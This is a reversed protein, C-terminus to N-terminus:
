DEPPVGDRKFLWGAVRLYLTGAMITMISALILYGTFVCTSFIKFEWTPVGIVFSLAIIQVPYTLKVFLSPEPFKLSPNALKKPIFRMIGVMITADTIVLVAAWFIALWPYLPQGTFYGQYWIIFVAPFTLARDIFLDLIQGLSSCQNLHRALLGDLMDTPAAIWLLAIALYYEHIWIAYLFPIAVALRFLSLLNPALKLDGSRLPQEDIAQPSLLQEESM